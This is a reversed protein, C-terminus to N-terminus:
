ERKQLLDVVAKFLLDTAKMADETKLTCGLWEFQEDSFSGVELAKRSIKTNRGLDLAYEDVHELTNRMAGHPTEISVWRENPGAVNRSRLTHRM